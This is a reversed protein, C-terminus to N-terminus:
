AVLVGSPGAVWSRWSILAVRGPSTTKQGISTTQQRRLQAYAVNALAGMSLTRPLAVPAMTLDPGHTPRRKKLTLPRSRSSRVPPTPNTEGPGNDLAGDKM